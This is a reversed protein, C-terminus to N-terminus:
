QIQLMGCSFLKKEFHKLVQIIADNTQFIGKEQLPCVCSKGKFWIQNSKVMDVVMLYNETEKGLYQFHYDMKNDKLAFSVNIITPFLLFFKLDM